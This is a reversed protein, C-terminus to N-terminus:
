IKYQGEDSQREIQQSEKNNEMYQQTNTLANDPDSPLEFDKQFKKPDLENMLQKEATLDHKECAEKIEEATVHVM